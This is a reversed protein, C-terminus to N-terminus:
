EGQVKRVRLSKETGAMNVFCFTNNGEGPEDCASLEIDM